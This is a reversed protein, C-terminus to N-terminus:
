EDDKDDLAASLARYLAYILISWLLGQTNNV